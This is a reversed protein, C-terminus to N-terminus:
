LHFIVNLSFLLRGVDMWVIVNDRPHHILGMGVTLEVLVM